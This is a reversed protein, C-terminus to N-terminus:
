KSPILALTLTPIVPQEDSEVYNWDKDFGEMIYAYQNNKLQQFDLAVYDIAFVNQSSKFVIEETVSIDQELPSDEGISVPKNFLKVGTLYIHPVENSGKLSDPNFVNLGGTGGFFMDGKQNKAYANILFEKGQLGDSEAFNKFKWKKTDFVALGENTALWLNQHGDEMIGKVANNPL